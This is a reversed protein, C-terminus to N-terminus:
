SQESAKLFGDDDAKAPQPVTSAFLALAVLMMTKMVNEKTKTQVVQGAQQKEEKRQHYAFSFM